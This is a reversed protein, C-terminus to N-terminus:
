YFDFIYFCVVFIYLAFSSYLCFFVLKHLKHQLPRFLISPHFISPLFSLVVTLSVEFPEPPRREVTQKQQRTLTSEDEPNKWIWPSPLFTTNLKQAKIRFRSLMKNNTHKHRPTNIDAKMFCHAVKAMHKANHARKYALSRSHWTTSNNAMHWHKHTETTYLTMRATCYLQQTCAQTHTNHSKLSGAAARRCFEM